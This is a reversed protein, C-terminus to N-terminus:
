LNDNSKSISSVATIRYEGVHRISSVMSSHEVDAKLPPPGDALSIRPTSCLIEKANQVTWPKALQPNM